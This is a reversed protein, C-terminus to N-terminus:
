WRVWAQNFMDALNSLETTCDSAALKSLALPMEKELMQARNKPSPHTSLFQPIRDKGSREMREWVAVAERPDFCAQAMLQLGIADAEAECKRSFPKEAILDRALPSFVFHPDVGFLSLTFQIAFLIKTFSLKEASHRAVQHAIEHGLVAAMGDENLVFPLIGTFVFVKGGPLVFANPEPHEIVYFEWQLDDMGSVKVIRKAVRKVFMTDPHMPPLIRRRFQSMIQHYAQKAMAEEQGKTVDMFRRRGSIPVTELHAVYYGGFMVTGTALFVWLRKSMYFPEKHGQFRQYGDNSVFREKPFGPPYSAFQRRCTTAASFSPVSRRTWTLNSLRVTACPRFRLLM